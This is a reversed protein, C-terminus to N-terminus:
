ARLPIAADRDALLDLDIGTRGAERAAKAFVDGIGILVPEDLGISAMAEAMRHLPGAWRKEKARTVASVIVVPSRADRGAELLSSQTKPPSRNIEDGLIFNAFIPGKVTYFGKERTYMTIGTIDTPLLDVTFQVRSYQCGVVSALSRILLTKAIGPVGEVLVHGDAILSKLLKDVVSEQGVVLRGVEKKVDALLKHCKKIDEKM